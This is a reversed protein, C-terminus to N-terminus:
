AAGRAEADQSSVDWPLVEIATAVLTPTGADAPIRWMSAGAGAVTIGYITRRGGDFTVEYGRLDSDM